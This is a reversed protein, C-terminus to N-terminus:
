WVNMVTSGKFSSIGSPFCFFSRKVLCRWQTTYQWRNSQLDCVREENTREVVSDNQWVLSDMQHRERKSEEQSVQSFMDVGDKLLIQTFSVVLIDAFDSFRCTTQESPDPPAPHKRRHVIQLSTDHVCVRRYVCTRGKSSFDGFCSCLPLRKWLQVCRPHQLVPALLAGPRSKHCFNSRSFLIHGNFATSM